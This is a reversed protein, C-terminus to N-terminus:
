VKVHNSSCCAESCSSTLHEFTVIFVGKIYRCGKDLTSVLIWNGEVEPYVPHNCKAKEFKPIAIKSKSQNIFYMMEDDPIHAM